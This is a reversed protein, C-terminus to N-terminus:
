LTQNVLLHSTGLPETTLELMEPVHFTCDMILLDHTGVGTQDFKPHMASTLRAQVVVVLFFGIVYM